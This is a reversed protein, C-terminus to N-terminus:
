SEFPLGVGRNDKDIIHISIAKKYVSILIKSTYYIM